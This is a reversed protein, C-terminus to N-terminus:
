LGGPQVMLACFLGWNAEGMINPLLTEVHAQPHFHKEGPTSGREIKSILYVGLSLIM